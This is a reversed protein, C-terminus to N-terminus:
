PLLLPLLQEILVEIRTAAAGAVPLSSYGEEAVCLSTYAAGGSLSRFAPYAEVTVTSSTSSEPTGSRSDCDASPSRSPSGAAALSGVHGTDTSSTSTQLGAGTVLSPSALRLSEQLAARAEASCKALAAAVADPSKHAEQALQQAFYDAPECFFLPKRLTSMKEACQPYSTKAVHGSHAHKHMLASNTETFIQDVPANLSLKSMLAELFNSTERVGSKCFPMCSSLVAFDSYRTVPEGAGDFIGDYHDYFFVERTIEAGRPDDPQVQYFCVKRDIFRTIQYCPATGEPLVFRLVEREPAGLSDYITSHEQGFSAARLPHEM